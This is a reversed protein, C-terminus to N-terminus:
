PESGGRDGVDGGGGGGGTPAASTGVGGGGRGLGILVNATTTGSIATITGYSWAGKLQVRIQRGVDTPLLGQDNNLGLNNTWQFQVVTGTVLPALTRLVNDQDNIPLYPGDVPVYEAFVWNTNGLRRLERPHVDPATMLIIDDIQEYQLRPLDIGRFPSNIIYPTAGSLVREGDKWFTLYDPTFELVFSQDDSFVFPILRTTGAVIREGRYRTGSRRRVGGEKLVHWNLVSSFSQAYTEIDQRGHALPSIEGRVGSAKLVQQGM